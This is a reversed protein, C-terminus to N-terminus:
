REGRSSAGGASASSLDGRWSGGLAKVLLVSANMRRRRIDVDNRENALAATQATVVQLYTVLGGRYRNTSLELATQAAAVARAQQQAERELIRLAVLSNEVEQFASLTAQRYQAVAGDYRALAADSVARRRGADFLTQTVSPGVAWLLSGWKMWNSAGTGEVGVSGNLLVTPFFAAKAIGIEENAAAVRREAAAVDPRRELLESPVGVPVDPPRGTLPRRPLGFTAPPVGILVAIAHELQARQVAVDTAQVRTTELQTEAEAVDLKPSAGGKYRHVTLRLADTYAKVTEDLLQQQADASRLEFYDFALEAQLSLQVAGLDADSAEAGARASGVTRRIRGWLDIEYSLDLSAIVDGSANPNRPVYPKNNSVNVSAIGVGASISPFLAARYFSVRARAERFRAEAVMLDQNAAIVQEELANLEPDSFIEWWPGRPAADSPQAVKWGDLEKYSTTMPVPPRKYDPGVMCGACLVVLLGTLHGVRM